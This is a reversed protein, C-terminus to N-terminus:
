YQLKPQSIKFVNPLYIIKQYIDDKSEAFVMHSAMYKRNWSFRIIHVLIVLSRFCFSSTSSLCVVPRRPLCTGTHLTLRMMLNRTTIELSAYYHEREQITRIRLEHFHIRNDDKSEAFVMYSATYKRNGMFRIIHVLIVLLM